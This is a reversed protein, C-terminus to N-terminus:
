VSDRLWQLYADSGDAIPVAIIEPVDYPHAELVAQQVEAQRARTTKILLLMEPEDEIAGQWRYTSDIRMRNVCAALRREVLQRALSQAQAGEQPMTTLMLICENSPSAM